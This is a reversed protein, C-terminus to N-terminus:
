VKKKYRANKYTGIKEIKEEKLLKSLELEITKISVDPLKDLIEMKSVPVISNMLVTEVRKSKPTKYLSLEMFSDDLKKYCKYLVQLFYIIFPRYDNKNEEWMYSSQKLAEYYDEKYENIVNEISIYRGIDFHAIYLLLITLLRSVRGNGDIFPHICLFDVIICPILLLSFIESDQRADIYALILQEMAKPTEKYSIPKFRISRTGDSHYEMILNDRTKYKGAEKKNTDELLMSHLKLITEENVDLTDNQTHIYNLANKYGVIEKEDHTLPKSGDFIDKIRTNTTVIGEIANSSITSDIIAKKQLLEFSDKYQIKRFDEKSKLDSIIYSLRLIDNASDEKLFSYDFKRM